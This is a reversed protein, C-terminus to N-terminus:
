LFLYLYRSQLLFDDLVTTSNSFIVGSIVTRLNSHSRHWWYLHLKHLLTSVPSVLSSLYSLRSPGRITSIWCRISENFCIPLWLLTMLHLRLRIITWFSIFLAQLEMNKKFYYTCYLRIQKSSVM